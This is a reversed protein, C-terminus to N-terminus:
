GSPAQAKPELRSDERSLSERGTVVRELHAYRQAIRTYDAPRVPKHERTRTLDAKADLYDRAPVGCTQELMCAADEDGLAVPIGLREQMQQRLARDLEVLLEAEMKARRMLWGMSRVYELSSRHREVRLPRPAGFRTGRAFVYLLGVALFQALFVWIGRSLPPLPAAQHHFEDFVLPGRAALADWFRLNDLLELRHNEALDAGALVYVEGKDLGWRWLVPTTSLGALPLANDRLMQVGRDRSVRLSSLGRAPGVPLWVDVTTGGPDVWESAMGQHNAGLLPGPDLELWKELAPQHRGLEHPSLYVLTGGERVFRELATVEDKSVVRAQPAAIVVTRTGPPLSELSAAHSEVTRGGERLYLSLARLGLPGANAVSPVPSDPPAQRSALGLALALVVLVGLVLATRANRV